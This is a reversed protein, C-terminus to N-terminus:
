SLGKHYEVSLWNIVLNLEMTPLLNNDILWTALLGSTLVGVFEM